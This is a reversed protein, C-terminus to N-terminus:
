WRGRVTRLIGIIEKEGFAGCFALFYWRGCWCAFLDVVRSPLIWSMGFRCFFANWLACAVECYLLLRSLVIIILASLWSKKAMYGVLGVGM